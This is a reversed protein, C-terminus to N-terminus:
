DWNFYTANTAVHGGDVPLAVGTIHSSEDSALFAAVAAVEEPLGLRRMPNQTRNQKAYAEKDNIIEGSVREWMPTEIQGPCIANARIGREAYDCVISKALGIVAHKSCVYDSASPTGILGGVSSTFIISSPEGTKLMHQIEYKACYFAGFLNIRVVREWKASDVEGVPARTMMVGANNMAFNLKGLEASARDMAAIVGDEDSVDAEICLVEAAPIDKIILERTESLKDTSVDILAVGAGERAFRVACARGIGTGAGTIVGKKGSLLM